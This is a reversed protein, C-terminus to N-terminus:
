KPVDSQDCNANLFVDPNRLYVWFLRTKLAASFDKDQM